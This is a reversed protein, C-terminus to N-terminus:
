NRFIKFFGNDLAIKCNKEKFYNNNKLVDFKLDLNILRTFIYRRNIEDMNSVDIYIKNCTVIDEESVKWHITKKLNVNIISPFSDYRGIGSNFVLYKYFPFSLSIIILLYNIKFYTKKNKIYFNFFILIILFISYFFYLKVLQWIRFDILNITFIFLFSFFVALYLLKIKSNLSKFIIKINNFINNFIFYIMYSCILFLLINTLNIGAGPTLFYFGLLSIPINFFIFYYENNFNYNVINKALYIISDNNQIIKKLIEVFDRNLVISESGLIFAGYYGWWDVKITSIKYTNYFDGYTAQYHPATLLFFLFLFFLIRPYNKYFFFLINRRRDIIFFIVIILLLILFQQPYILFGASLNITFIIIKKKDINNDIYLETFFKTLFIFYSLFFLQSLADIEFIYLTWFSFCFFFFLIIQDLIKKKIYNKIFYLFSLGSLSVLFFKFIFASFFIDVFKPYLFFSMFLAAAPREFLNQDLNKIVFILNLDKFFSYYDFFRFKKILVSNAVYWTHDYHNGRFVYFQEGYSLSILVGFFIIVFILFLELIFFNKYYKKKYFFISFFISYLLLFLIIERLNLNLIFYLFNSFILILSIGTIFELFFFSKYNIIRLFSFGTIFISYFFILLYIFYFLIDV